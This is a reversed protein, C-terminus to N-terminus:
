SNKVSTLEMWGVIFNVIDCVVGIVSCLSSEKEQEGESEIGYKPVEQLIFCLFIVVSNYFFGM